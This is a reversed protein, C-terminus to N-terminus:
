KKTVKLTVKTTASEITDSGSYSVTLKYKGAELKPLKVTAKGNKLAVGAKLMKKGKSVSVTGTPKSDSSVTVVVKAKKNAPVKAAVAKVKADAVTVPAVVVSVTLSVPTRSGAFTASGAYDVTLTHVGAALKPLVVSATGNALAGTGLVTAGELVSVSGDAVAGPAAVSITVAAAQDATVPAVSASVTTGVKTVTLSVTGTSAAVTESGSYAVTLTHAGAALKPLTVSASGNTVTGTGLMASGESISVTGNIAGAGSVTVAIQPAGLTTVSAATATVTSTAKSVSVQVSSSEAGAAGPLNPTFVAEVNYTALATGTSVAKTATKSGPAVNATGLSTTGNFFEVTGGQDGATTVTATLTFTGGFGVTAMDSALSVQSESAAYARRSADGCAQDGTTATLVGFGYEAIIDDNECVESDTGIFMEHIASTEDDAFKSPVINYVLRTIATFAPDLSYAGDTGLVPNQGNISGLVADSRRDTVGAIDNGQAVWQGISFPVIAGPDGVLAAGAHEQVSVAPSAGVVTDRIPVTANTIDTETVGVQGLWFTRTGSGAQPVYAHIPVLQEGAAPVYTDNVLRLYDGAANTVIKTVVGHYIAYLTAPGVGNADVADASSGKALNAPILSDESVAFTVADKAFPVYSLVGLPGVYAPSSPLGSSSRAFDVNGVVDASTWSGSSTTQGIAVRLADRGNGSGNPRVFPKGGSRTTITASGVADYSALTVDGTIAAAMGNMVDQTTDSGVGVLDGFTGSVPDAHAPVALTGAAVAAAVVGIGFKAFTTAKM